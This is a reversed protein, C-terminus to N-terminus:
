RWVAQNMGEQINLDYTIGQVMSQWPTSNTLTVSLDEVKQGVAFFEEGQKTATGGASITQTRGEVTIGLTNLKSYTMRGGRVFVNRGRVAREGIVPSFPGLTHIMDYNFGVWVKAHGNKLDTSNLTLKTSSTTSSSISTPTYVTTAGANSTAVIRLNDDMATTDLIEWPVTIETNGSNLVVESASAPTFSTLRDLMVGAFAAETTDDLDTQPVLIDLDIYEIIVHGNSEVILYLRDGMTVM